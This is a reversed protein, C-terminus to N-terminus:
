DIVRQLYWDGDRDDRFIELMMKALTVLSHTGEGSTKTM